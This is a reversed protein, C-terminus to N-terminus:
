ITRRWMKEQNILYDESLFSFCDLHVPRYFLVANLPFCSTKSEVKFDGAKLFRVTAPSVGGGGM